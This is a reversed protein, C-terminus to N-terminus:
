HGIRLLYVVSVDASISLTGPPYEAGDANASLSEEMFVVPQPGALTGSESISYVPGLSAGAAAALAAARAHADDVAKVLAQRRLADFDSRDMTTAFSTVGARVLAGILDAYRNLKRLTIVIRRSVRQGIFVQSNNQWQYEPQISLGAANSDREAVGRKRAAAIVAEAHQEVDNRALTLDKDTKVLTVVVQAMDPVVSLSGHGTVQVWPTPPVADARVTFALLVLLLTALSKMTPKM